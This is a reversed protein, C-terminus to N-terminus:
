SRLQAGLEVQLAQVIREMFAAVEDDVLTRTPHQVILGVAVSKFGPMVGKGTYVDFIFVGKLWDGAIDKITDQIAQAPVAQQLIIAIDRRIEPFKSIEQVNIAENETLWDLSLEFVFVKAPTDLEQVVSPHLAGALGIKQENVYIVATQGPHLAPHTDPKFQIRAAPSIAALLTELDGKLDFFDAERAPMGWQLPHVTGTILGGLRLPQELQGDVKKFCAGVEFLRVRHQQRSVNYLLTRILGPWLSTRMVAMDATIPNVLECTAEEPDLIAQSKKDVFSYSIIEHYGAHALALRAEHLREAGDNFHTAQLDAHLPHTPIRNYGYVRVIEEIVDQSLSIDFRYAPITIHWGSTEKTFDFQLSKLLTEVTANDLAIGLVRLISDAPLFITKKPPLTAENVCEIVEGAEGGVISLILQTAREIAKRQLTSDVGREFRYASDSHLLYHQRQRAVTLPSFFASELFIDTTTLTISSAVGGMLGAIALPDREDAIVLTEDDLTKESGDLLHLTEGAKAYRIVIGGQLKACDFAHMPQGLELMVYNTVDVVPSISGIGSRRLREKLWIPSSIDNKVGRIIRGLYRPCAAEAQNKVPFREQHTAPVPSMAPPHLPAGTLTHIERALGQISLCDGRNPTISIEITHDDLALYTWLSEGLPADAALEILGESEEALGLESASCLMGHSLVGRLATEKIEMGNPLSAGITAVAVKLEPRVNKAGCVISLPKEKGIDVECIHLREAEPHKAVTKVQGIVVHTFPKAIPAIEEVELGAMTLTDSLADHSLNPNVWERLWSESCKM